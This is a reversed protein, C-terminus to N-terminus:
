PKEKSSVIRRRDIQKFSWGTENNGYRRHFQHILNRVIGFDHCTFWEFRQHTTFIKRVRKLIEQEARFYIEEIRPSKVYAVLEANRGHGLTRLRTRFDSTTGIKMVGDAYLLAYLFGSKM